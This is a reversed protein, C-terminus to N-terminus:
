SILRFPFPSFYIPSGKLPRGCDIFHPLWEFLLCKKSNGANDGKWFDQLLFM